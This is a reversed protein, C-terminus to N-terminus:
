PEEKLLRTIKKRERSENQRESSKRWYQNSQPTPAKVKIHNSKECQISNIKLVFNYHQENTKIIDAWIEIHSTAQLKFTTLMNWMNTQKNNDKKVWKQKSNFHTQGFINAFTKQTCRHHSTLAVFLMNSTKKRKIWEYQHTFRRWLENLFSTTNQTKGVTFLGISIVNQTKWFIMKAYLRYVTSCRKSIRILARTEFWVGYIYVMNSQVWLFLRNM